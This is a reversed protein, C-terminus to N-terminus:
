QRDGGVDAVNTFSQPCNEAHWSDEARAMDILWWNGLWDMAFDVSWAGDGCAAAAIRADHEMLAIDEADRQNLYDLREQWDGKDPREIADEPWYFHSCYVTNGSAFVRFERAIRTGGFAKFNWELDIFERLMLSNALMGNMVNAEITRLATQRLETIDVARMHSMGSHKASSLDTRVFVPYGIEGAVVKLEHDPFEGDEGDLLGVAEWPDFEVFRTEPLNARLHEEADKTRPWWYRASNPNLRKQGSM